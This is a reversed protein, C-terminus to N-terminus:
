LTGYHQGRLEVIHSIYEETTQNHIRTGNIKDVLYNCIEKLPRGKLPGTAFVKLEDESLKSLKELKRNREKHWEDVDFGTSFADDMPIVLTFPIRAVNYGCLKLDKIMIKAAPENHSHVYVQEVKNIMEPNSCLWRVVEMGTDPRSSDAYYEGGLDHDLWLQALTEEEVDKLVSLVGICKDAKEFHIMYKGICLRKFMKIRNPNDELIFIM